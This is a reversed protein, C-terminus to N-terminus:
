VSKTTTGVVLADVRDGDSTFGGIVFEQAFQFKVKLWADSREEPEYRSDTRKAVAGELGLRRLEREIDAPSGPLRGQFPAATVVANM